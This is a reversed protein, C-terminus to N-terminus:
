SKAPTASDPSLKGLMATLEEDASIITENRAAAPKPLEVAVPAPVTDEVTERKLLEVPPPASNAPLAEALKPRAAAIPRPRRELRPAPINAGSVRDPPKIERARRGSGRPAVRTSAKAIIGEVIEPLRNKDAAALYDRAHEDVYPQGYDALVSSVRSLDVDSEVLRRWAQRDYAQRDYAQRDYPLSSSSRARPAEVIQVPEPVPPLAALPEDAPVDTPADEIAANGARKRNNEAVLLSLLGVGMLLFGLTAWVLTACLLAGIILLIWATIRVVLDERHFIWGANLRDVRVDVRSAEPLPRMGPFDPTDWFFHRWRNAM